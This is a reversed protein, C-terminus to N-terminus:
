VSAVLSVADGVAISGARRHVANQGFMVKSGVKRYTSLTRLPEKGMEATAVDVTTIACRACPKVVDVDISGIRIQRWDDEAYAGSQAVVVNPRFRRMEIGSEGRAVLKENLM